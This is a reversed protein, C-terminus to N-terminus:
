VACFLGRFLTPATFASRGNQRAVRQWLQLKLAKELLPKLYLMVFASICIIHCVIRHIFIALSLFILYLLPCSHVNIISSSSSLLVHTNLSKFTVDNTLNALQWVRFCDIFHELITKENANYYFTYVDYTCKLAQLFSVTFRTTFYSSFVSRSGRRAHRAVTVTSVVDYVFLHSTVYSRVIDRVDAFRDTPSRGRHATM